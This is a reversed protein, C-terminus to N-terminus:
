RRVGGQRGAARRAGRAWCRLLITRAAAAPAAGQTGRASCSARLGAAIEACTFRLEGLAALDFTGAATSVVCPFLPLQAGAAGAAGAAAAAAAAAAASAAAQVAVAAAALLLTRPPLRPVQTATYFTNRWFALHLHNHLNITPRRPSLSITALPQKRGPPAACRALSILVRPSRAAQAMAQKLRTAPPWRGAPSVGGAVCNVCFPSLLSCVDGKVKSRRLSCWWDGIRWTHPRTQRKSEFGRVM